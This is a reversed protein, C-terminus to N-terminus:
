TRPHSAHSLRHPGLLVTIALLVSTELQAIQELYHTQTFYLTETNTSGSLAIKIGFLNKCSNVFTEYVKLDVLIPLGLCYKFIRHVKMSM